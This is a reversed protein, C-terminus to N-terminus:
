GAASISPCFRATLLPQPRTRENLLSVLSQSEERNKRSLYNAPEFNFQINANFSSLLKKLLQSKTMRPQESKAARHNRVRVESHSISHQKQPGRRDIKRFFFVLFCHRNAFDYCRSAIRESNANLRSPHRVIGEILVCTPDVYNSAQALSVSVFM